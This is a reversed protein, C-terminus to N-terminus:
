AFKKSWRKALIFFRRDGLSFAARNAGPPKKQPPRNECDAKVEKL